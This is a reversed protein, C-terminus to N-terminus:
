VAIFDKVKKVIRPYDVEEFNNTVVEVLEGVGVISSLTPDFHKDFLTADEHGPHREQSAVRQKARAILVAEDATCHLELVHAGHARVLNEIRVKDVEPKFCAEAIVVRGCKLEQELVSFLMQTAALGLQRPMDLNTLGLTDFLLEKFRDKSFYPIHLQESIHQALYSKGSGSLGSIVILKSM